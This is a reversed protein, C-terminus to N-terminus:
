RRTAPAAYGSMNGCRMMNKIAKKANVQSTRTAAFAKLAVIDSRGPWDKPTGKGVDWNKITKDTCGCIEAADKFTVAKRPKQTRGAGTEELKLSWELIRIRVANLIGRLHHAQVTLVTPASPDLIRQDEKYYIELDPQCPVHVISNKHEDELINEIEPIPVHCPFVETNAIPDSPNLGFTFPDRYGICNGSPSIIEQDLKGTLFRYSPILDYNGNIEFYGESESRIWSEQDIRCLRRAVLWAKSLLDSVPISSDTAARQLERVIDSPSAM